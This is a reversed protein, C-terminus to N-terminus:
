HTQLCGELQKEANGLGEYLKEILSQWECTVKDSLQRYYTIGELLNKHFNEIYVRRKNDITENTENLFEMWFDVYLMLEKIFMNPRDPRAIINTRGY